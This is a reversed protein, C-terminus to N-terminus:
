TETVYSPTGSCLCLLKASLNNSDRTRVSNALNWVANGVLHDSIHKIHTSRVAVLNLIHSGLERLLSLESCALLSPANRAVDSERACELVFKRLVVGLFKLLITAPAAALYGVHSALWASDM